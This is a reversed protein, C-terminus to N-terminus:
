FRVKFTIGSDLAYWAAGTDQTYQYFSGDGELGTERGWSEGHAGKIFRYSAYLSLEFRERFSFIIDGRPELYLGGTIRDEYENQALLHDDRAVCFILPSIQFSADLKLWTLLPVSLAVGPSILLWNQSYIISIGYLPDKPTSDDLAVTYLYDGKSDKPYQLYGDRGTWQFNMWALAGYAKLVGFSRLPLSVGLSFDLLLAGTTYNDSRSYNSLEDEPTNWDRDEMIGTKGPFGFKLSLTSYFGLAGLLNKWSFDLAAGYYFLPKMNWLLQSLYTEEGAYKYVIEEGYGALLGFSSALSFSYPVAAGTNASINSLIHGQGWAQRCPVLACLIVFAAFVAINKM